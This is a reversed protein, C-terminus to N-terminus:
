KQQKGASIQRVHDTGVLAEVALAEGAHKFVADGHLQVIKEGLVRRVVPRKQVAIFRAQLGSQDVNVALQRVDGEGAVEIRGIGREAVIGAHDDALVEHVLQVNFGDGRQVLEGLVQGAALGLQTYLGREHGRVVHVFVDPVVAVEGGREAQGARRVILHVAFEVEARILRLELIAKLVHMLQIDVAQEIRVEGHGVVGGGDGSHGVSGACGDGSHNGAELDDGVGGRLLAELQGGNGGQGRVLALLGVHAIGGCDCACGKPAEDGLFALVNFGREAEEVVQVGGLAHIEGVVANLADGVVVVFVSVNHQGVEHRVIGVTEGDVGDGTGITQDVPAADM